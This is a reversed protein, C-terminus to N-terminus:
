LLHRLVFRYNLRKNLTTVFTVFVLFLCLLLFPCCADNQDLLFIISIDKNLLLFLQFLAKHGSVIIYLDKM